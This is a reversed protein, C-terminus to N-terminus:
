PVDEIEEVPNLENTATMEIGGQGAENSVLKVDGDSPKVSTSTRQCFYVIVAVGGAILAAGAVAGVVIGAIAGASLPESDGGTVPTVPKSTSEPETQSKSTTKPEVDTRSTGELSTTGIIETEMVTTGEPNPSKSASTAAPTPNTTQKVTTIINSTSASPPDTQSTSAPLDTHSTSLITTAATTPHSSITVLDTELDMTVEETTGIQCRVLAFISLSILVWLTQTRAM